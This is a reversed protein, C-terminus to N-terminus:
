VGTYDKYYKLFADRDFTSGGLSPEIDLIQKLRYTNGEDDKVFMGKNIGLAKSKLKLNNVKATQKGTEDDDDSIGNDLIVIKDDPQPLHQDRSVKGLANFVRSGRQFEVKTGNISDIDMFYVLAIEKSTPSKAYVAPGGEKYNTYEVVKYTAGDKTKITDKQIPVILV